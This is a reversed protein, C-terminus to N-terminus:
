EIKTIDVVFEGFERYGELFEDLGEQSVIRVNQVPNEVYPIITTIKYKAQEYNKVSAQGISVQETLELSYEKAHWYLRELLSNGADVVAEADQRRIDEGHVARNCVSLVETIPAALSGPLLEKRVMEGVLQGLPRSRSRESQPNALRDLKTIVKELEIRLKALALVPDSSVLDAIDSMASYVEPPQEGETPSTGLETVVEDTIRKVEKPDIEAEFDGIKIKRIASAFPSLLIIVLLIVSTTDVQVDDLGLSHLVLLILALLFTLWWLHGVLFKKM